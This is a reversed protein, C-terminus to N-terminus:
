RSVYPPQRSRPPRRPSRKPCRRNNRMPIESKVSADSTHPSEVLWSSRSAARATCPTPPAIAEATDSESIIVSKVSGASRALAMPTKPNTAAPPPLMPTVRPPMRVSERSQCQIKRTLKGIPRM